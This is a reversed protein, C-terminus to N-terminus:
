IVFIKGITIYWKDKNYLVDFSSFSDTNEKKIYQEWAKNILDKAVKFGYSYQCM